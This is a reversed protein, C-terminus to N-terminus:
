SSVARYWDLYGSSSARQESVRDPARQEYHEVGQAVGSRIVPPEPPLAQHVMATRRLYRARPAAEPTRLANWM